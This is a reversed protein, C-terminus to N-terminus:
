KERLKRRRRLENFFESFTKGEETIRMKIEWRYHELSVQDM